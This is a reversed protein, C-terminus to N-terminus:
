KTKAYAESLRYGLVAMAHEAENAITEYQESLM